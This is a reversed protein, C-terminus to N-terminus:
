RDVQLLLTIRRPISSEGSAYELVIGIYRDSEIVEYLRVINPHRMDQRLFTPLPLCTHIHSDASTWTVGVKTMM